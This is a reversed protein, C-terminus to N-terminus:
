GYVFLLLSMVLHKKIYIYEGGSEPISTGPEAYCVACWANYLGCIIWMVFSLGIGVPSVFIGSGIIIRIIIAVGQLLTIQKKLEITVEPEEEHERDKLVKSTITM